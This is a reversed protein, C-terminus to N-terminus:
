HDILCAKQEWYKAFFDEVKVPNLLWKFARKGEEISSLKVVNSPPSLPELKVNATTSLKSGAAKPTSKKSFEDISALSSRRRKPEEAVVKEPKATPLSKRSNSKSNDEAKKSKKSEIVANSKTKSQSVEPSKRKKNTKALISQALAEAAQHDEENTSSSEQDTYSASDQGEGTEEDTYSGSEDITYEDSYVDSDSYTEEEESRDRM